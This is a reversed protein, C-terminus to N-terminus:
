RGTCCDRKAPRANLARSSTAKPRRGYPPRDNTTAGKRPPKRAGTTPQEPAEDSAGVDEAWDDSVM